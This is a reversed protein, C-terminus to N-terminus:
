EKIIEWIKSKYVAKDGEWFCLPPFAVCWWNDGSGEGLTVIIARYTGEKLVTDGYKKTPFNENKISLNCTYDFKNEKLFNNILKEIKDCHKKVVAEAEKSTNIYEFHPSLYALLEDRVCLKIQQDYESNSNARIHLRLYNKNVTNNNACGASLLVIVSLILLCFKRM